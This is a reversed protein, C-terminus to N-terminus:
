RQFFFPDHFKLDLDCLKAWYQVRDSWHYKCTDGEFEDDCDTNHRCVKGANPTVICERLAAKLTDVEAGLCRWCYKPDNGHRCDGIQRGSDSM